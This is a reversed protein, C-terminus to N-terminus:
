TTSTSNKMKKLWKNYVSYQIFNSSRKRSIFRNFINKSKGKALFFYHICSPPVLESNVVFHRYTRYDLHSHKTPVFGSTGRLTELKLVFRKSCACKRELPSYKFLGTGPAFHCIEPKSEKVPFSSISGSLCGVKTRFNSHLFENQAQRAQVDWLKQPLHM